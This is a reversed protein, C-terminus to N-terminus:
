GSPNAFSSEVKGKLKGRHKDKKDQSTQGEWHVHFGSVVEEHRRGEPLFYKHEILDEFLCFTWLWMVQWCAKTFGGHQVHPRADLFSM